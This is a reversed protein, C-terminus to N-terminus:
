TRIKWDTGKIAEIIKVSIDGIGEHHRKLWEYAYDLGEVTLAGQLSLVGVGRRSAILDFTKFRGSYEFHCEFTESNLEHVLQVLDHLPADTKIDRSM